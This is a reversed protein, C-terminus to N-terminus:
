SIDEQYCAECYVKEDRDVEYTSEFEADCGENDCVRHYLVRPNRLGMRADYRVDPHVRPVPLGLKRYFKLEAPQLRFPRGTSECQVAWNLVDDPIESILDPLKGGSIVKKVEPISDDSDHWKEGRALVEDKSLPFYEAALTENYAFPSLGVPFFDGWEGTSIMHEIIRPVLEEYEEKTYQKNMVCYQKKRLGICGFCNNCSFCQECYLMDRSHFLYLGFHVNFTEIVGLTQYCLEPKVYMNSCDVLDRVEVGVQVHMCDESDNMDFCDICNKCNSLFDGKCNECNVVNAYKFVKNKRFEDFQKKLVELSEYGKVAEAVKKEYEEKECKENEFFYEKGVLNTCMFCNKCNRCGDCFWCDSCNQSYNVWKCNYCQRVNFCEYLLESDYAYSCDVCDKSKQLLKGYCCDECYESSNIMYCNKCFGTGTSYDSNENSVQVVNAYPVLKQMEGFQEFFARNFDYDRGFAMPDWVDSNWEEQLCVKRDSDPRYVSVLDKGSFCSKNKYYFRENRHSTRKRLRETPCINPEPIEFTKDGIKVEIKKLFDIEFDTIEFEQGTIACTKKM